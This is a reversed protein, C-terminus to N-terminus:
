QAALSDKRKFPPIRLDGLPSWIARTKKDTQTENQVTYAAKSGSSVSQGGKETSSQCLGLRALAKHCM